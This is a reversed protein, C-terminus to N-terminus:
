AGNRFHTRVVLQTMDCTSLAAGWQATFDLTNLITGDFAAGGNTVVNSLASLLAETNALILSGPRVTLYGSFRISAVVGAGIPIAQTHLLVGGQKRIRMTLTDGGVCNVNMFCDFSISSGVPMLPQFVLDGVANTLDILSTEVVTLSCSVDAYSSYKDVSVPSNRVRIDDSVAKIAYPRAVTYAVGPNATMGMVFRNHVPIYLIMSYAMNNTTAGDLSANVFGDAPNSATYNSYVATGTPKTALYYRNIGNGAWTLGVFGFATTVIIGINTWVVGDPSTFGYGNVSDIV